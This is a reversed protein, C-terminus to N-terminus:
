ELDSLAPDYQELATHITARLSFPFPSPEPAVAICAALDALAAKVPSRAADLDSALPKMGAIALGVADLFHNLGRFYYARARQEAMVSPRDIVRTCAGITRAIEADTKVRDYQEAVCTAYDDQQTRGTNTTALVVAACLCFAFAPHAGTSILKM